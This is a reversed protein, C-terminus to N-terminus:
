PLVIGKGSRANTESVSHCTLVADPDKEAPWVWQWVWEEAWRGVGSEVRVIECAGLGLWARSGVLQPARAGEAELTTYYVESSNTEHKM